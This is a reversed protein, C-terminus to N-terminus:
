RILWGRPSPWPFKRNTGLLQPYAPSRRSAVPVQLPTPAAKHSKARSRRSRFGDGPPCPWFQTLNTLCGIPILFNSPTPFFKWVNASWFHLTKHSYSFFFFSAWLLFLCALSFQIKRFKMIINRVIPVSWEFTGKLKSIHTLWNQSIKKTHKNSLKKGCKNGNESISIPHLGEQLFHIVKRHEKEEKNQVINRPCAEVKDEM